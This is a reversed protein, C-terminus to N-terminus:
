SKQDFFKAPRVFRPSGYGKVARKGRRIERIESVLVDKKRILMEKTRNDIEQIVRILEVMEMAKKRLNPELNGKMEKRPGTETENVFIKSRLRERERSLQSFLDMREEQLSSHQKLALEKMKGFLRINKEMPEM